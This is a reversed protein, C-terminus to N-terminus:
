CVGKQWVNLGGDSDYCYKNQPTERPATMLSMIRQYMESSMSTSGQAGIILSLVIFGLIFQTYEAICIEKKYYLKFM